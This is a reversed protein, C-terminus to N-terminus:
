IEWGTVCFLWNDQTYLMHAYHPHSHHLLKFTSTNTHTYTCMYMNHTYYLWQQLIHDYIHVPRVSDGLRMTCSHLMQGNTLTAHWQLYLYGFIQEDIHSRNAMVYFLYQVCTYVKAQLSSISIGSSTSGQVHGNFTPQILM